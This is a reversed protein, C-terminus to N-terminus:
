CTMNRIHEPIINNFFQLDDKKFYAKWVEIGGRELDSKQFDPRYRKDKVTIPQLIEKLLQQSHFAIYRLTQEPQTKLDCFRLFTVGKDKYPLWSLVHKYWKDVINRPKVYSYSFPQTETVVDWLETRLFKSFDPEKIFNEFQTNNYYHYCAVMVDHPDRIIYFIDYKELYESLYREFFYAQYHTKLCKTVSSPYYAILLQERIKEKLNRGNVDEVWHNKNGHIIDVWGDEIGIFNTSLNNILFHTGSRQFSVVIVKKM